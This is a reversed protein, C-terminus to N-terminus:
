LVTIGYIINLRDHPNATHEIDKTGKSTFWHMIMLIPPTRLDNNKNISDIERRMQMYTSHKWKIWIQNSRKNGKILNYKGLFEVVSIKKLMWKVIKSKILLHSISFDSWSKIILNRSDCLLQIGYEFGKIRKWRKILHVSLALGLSAM